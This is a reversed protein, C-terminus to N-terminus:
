GEAAFRRSYPIFLKQVAKRRVREGRRDYISTTIPSAHGLLNQVTSLDVGADL